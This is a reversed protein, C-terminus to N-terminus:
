GGRRVREYSNPKVFGISILVLTYLDTRIQSNKM